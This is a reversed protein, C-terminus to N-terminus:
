RRFEFRDRTEWVPLTADPDKLRIMTGTLINRNLVFKVYNYNPFDNSQYLDEKTRIIPRPKAGGGGSVLYVVGDQFFREYNHVHGATIVFRARSHSQYRKLLDALAIENPRANHSADGNEQYDSVPPHHLNVFVFEVSEPLANLEREIWKEEDSGPLLSSNSDLNLIYISDGLEVSYWRRGHLWPFARWWNELGEADGGNLEHNGLAPYIRLRDSRWRKTEAAFVTYDNAEAGHWPVDGSLLIAAPHEEAVRNVLLRRARPNTASMNSPDTFRMDGYAIITTPQQLETQKVDFDAALAGFGCALVGASVFLARLM